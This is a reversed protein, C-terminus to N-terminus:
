QASDPRSYQRIAELDYLVNDISPGLSAKYGNAYAWNRAQRVDVEAHKAHTNCRDLYNQLTSISDRLSELEVQQEELRANQTEIQKNLAAIETSADASKGCSSMLQLSACMVLASAYKIKRIM